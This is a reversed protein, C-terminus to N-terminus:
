FYLYLYFRLRFDKGFCGTGGKDFLRYSSLLAYDPPYVNLNISIQELFDIFISLENLDELNLGTLKLSSFM